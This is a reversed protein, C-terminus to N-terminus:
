GPAAASARLRDQEFGEVCEVGADGARAQHRFNAPIRIGAPAELIRDNFTISGRTVFLHKAQVHSHEPFWAGPGASWSSAAIGLSSFHEDVAPPAVLPEIGAGDTTSPM